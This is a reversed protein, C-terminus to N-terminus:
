ALAPATPADSSRRREGSAEWLRRLMRETTALGVCADTISQGYLLGAKSTGLAQRGEVLNSEIMVGLIHQSGGAIQRAVEDLVESQREHNKGSNDHSCDILIRQNVGARGLARAAGAVSEAGYNPRGEGGRLVLHCDPNGATQVVAVRGNGDIGLFSHPKSATIMANIGVELGGNTGNKFGVPMSLGSAMERHTQSETTRAGVAAWAVLEALYQPNVPDLMETAAPVGQEGLELLLRRATRLGSGIDCSGDLNPDNILGKWGVSTRPKEFYVRMVLVLRDSFEQRWQALRQAYDVAADPDHVSCPGVIVLLREAPNTLVARIQQRAQYVTDAARASIPMDGKLEDPSLLPKVGLVHLNNTQRM